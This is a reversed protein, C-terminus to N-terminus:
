SVTNKKIDYTQYEKAVECRDFIEKAERLFPNEQNKFITNYRTSFHTLLLHGVNSKSAMLAAEKATSHGRKRAIKKESELFTSEHMLLDVGNILDCNKELYSSDLCYAFSRPIYPSYTLEHNPIIEGSDKIIDEGRKARAREAISLNYKEIATTTINLEPEKERFLFGISPVTHKLPITHVTMVKNEYILQSEKTQIEHTIIEYSRGRDFMKFYFDIIEKLPAPAYINLPRERGLMSMTSILGYLGFFHDGHFHSIFIHNLKMMNIDCKKLGVQVGEGADILYFQERVNLVHATQHKTVTPLASSTGLVTLKFTM